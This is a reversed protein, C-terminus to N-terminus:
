ERRQATCGSEPGLCLELVEDRILSAIMTARMCGVLTVKGETKWGKSDLKSIKDSLDDGQLM